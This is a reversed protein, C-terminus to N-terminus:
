NGTGVTKLLRDWLQKKKVVSWSSVLQCYLVDRYERRDKVLLIIDDSKLIGPDIAASGPAKGSLTEVWVDCDHIEGLIEQLHKLNKLVPLLRNGYLPRYIELTYRLKKVAIRLAHHGAIDSPEQVSQQYSLLEELATRIRRGAYRYLFRSRLPRNRTKKGIRDLASEVEDITREKELLALADLVAAQQGERQEKLASILHFIGQRDVSPEGQRGFGSELFAIQVDTDRAISLARTIVKISRM